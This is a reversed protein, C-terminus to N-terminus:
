KNQHTTDHANHTQEITHTPIYVYVYIFISAIFWRLGVSFYFCGQVGWVITIFFPPSILLCRLRLITLLVRTNHIHKVFVFIYECVSVFEWSVCEWVYIIKTTYRDASLVENIPRCDREIRPSLQQACLFISQTRPICIPINEKGKEKHVSGNWIIGAHPAMGDMCLTLSHWCKKNNRCTIFKRIFKGLYTLAVPVVVSLDMRSKGSVPFTHITLM